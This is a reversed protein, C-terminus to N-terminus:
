AAPSARSRRRVAQKRKLARRVAREAGTLAGDIAAALSPDRGAFVVSPLGDLVVKVQCQHDVGGRPGNLDEVRVSVREVSSGFKGLKMGLKRRVYSREDASLHVGMVRINAPVDPAGTRGRERKTRKPLAGPFPARRASGARRQHGRPTAADKSRTTGKEKRTRM